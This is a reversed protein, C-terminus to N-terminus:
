KKDAAAKERETVEVSFNETNKKNEKKASNNATTKEEAKKDETKKNEVKKEETKNDATEKSETKKDVADEKDTTDTTDEKDAAKNDATAEQEDTLAPRAPVDPTKNKAEDMEKKSPTITRTRSGDSNTKYKSISLVDTQKKQIDQRSVDVVAIDKIFSRGLLLSYAMKSRDRLTFESSGSFNGIKINLRVVPSEEAQENSSQRIIATRVGKSEMKISKGNDLPIEFKYWTKGDREFREINVASISSVAAGSDIRAQIEADADAVYIWEEEGFIMKGDELATNTKNTHATEKVDTGNNMNNQHKIALTLSNINKSMSDNNDSIQKGLNKCDGSNETNNTKLNKIENQLEKIESVTDQQNKLVVDLTSNNQEVSQTLPSLDVQGSQLPHQCGSCSLVASSGIILSVTINKISKM